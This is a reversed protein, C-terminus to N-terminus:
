SESNEQLEDLREPSISALFCKARSLIETDIFVIDLLVSPIQGLTQSVTLSRMINGDRLLVPFSAPGSEQSDYDCRLRDQPFHRCVYHYALEGALRDPLDETVSNEYAPKFHQRNIIRKARFCGLSSPCTAADM